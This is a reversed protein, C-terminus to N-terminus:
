TALRRAGVGVFALVILAGVVSGIFGAPHLALVPHGALVNGVLGGVFAGAIGLLTTAVLGMSQRGPMIARAMLRGSEDEQEPTM